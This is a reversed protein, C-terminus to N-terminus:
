HNIALLAGACFFCVFVAFRALPAHWFLRYFGRRTLVADTAAFIVLALVFWVALTPAFAGLFDFESQM